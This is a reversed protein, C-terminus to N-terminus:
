RPAEAAPDGAAPDALRVGGVPQGSWSLLSWGAEPDGEMVVVGTNDLRDYQPDRPRGHGLNEARIGSWCRIAAAHSVVAATPVGSEAVLAIAADYRSVFERGSEGGPTSAQLDGDMWALVTELYRHVASQDSRGQLTGASIERLGPLVLPGLGLREAMPAATQQTRVMSSVWIGGISERVLAHSLAAAQERGLRTLGPGPVSADLVGEVNAPTQGHRILLLRMM